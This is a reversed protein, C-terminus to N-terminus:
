CWGKVDFLYRLSVTKEKKDIDFEGFHNPTISIGLPKRSFILYRNNADENIIKVMAKDLIYDARDIVILKNKIEIIKSINDVVAVFVNDPQLERLRTCLLTKGTSAKGGVITKNGKLQIIFNVGNIDTFDILNNDWDYAQM